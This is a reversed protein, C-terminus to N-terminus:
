VTEHGERKALLEHYLLRYRNFGEVFIQRLEVKLKGKLFFLGWIVGTLTMIITSLAVGILSQFVFVAVLDGALNILAMIGVKYFNLRPWNLADLAVGSFRDLPLLLGYLCFIRFLTASALYERGALLIIMMESAWFAIIVVPIFLLTAFGTYAYFQQRVAATDGARAAESIRPFATAVLSRLPVELIEILKLPVGYLAVAPAGLLASASIVFTDTSKLLNSGILTGLSYKGFDLLMRVTKRNTQRIRFLEDWGQAVCYISVSLAIALHIMIITDISCRWYLYNAVLFSVFAASEAARLWLIRDFKQGAQLHTMVNNYPLNFVAMLPYWVVFANFVSHSVAAAFFLRVALLVLVIVATLVISILWNAGVIAGREEESAGSLFRIMAIRTLGSRVMEIMTAATIYLIWEGLQQQDLARALLFFTAFGFLTIAVNNLLALTENFRFLRKLIQSPM